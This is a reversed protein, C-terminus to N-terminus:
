KKKLVIPIRIEQGSALLIRVAQGTLKPSPVINGFTLKLGFDGLTETKTTISPDPTEIEAIRFTDKLPNKLIITRSVPAQSMFDLVIKMPAVVIPSPVIVIVSVEMQKRTMHNTELVIRDGYQGPQFRDELNATIQFANKDPFKDWRVKLKGSDSKADLIEFSENKLSKLITSATAPADPSDKRLTLISPVFEFDAGVVGKISLQLAPNAPDNSEILISKHLEGSRGTLTLQTSLEASESPPITQRTLNAATCGCAPRIASIVLDTTGSNKLTFTHEVVASADRSGFDFTPQDCAIRPEALLNSTSIVSVIGSILILRMM